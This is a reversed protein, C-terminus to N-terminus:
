YNMKNHLTEIFSTESLKVLKTVKNSRTIVVKDGPFMAQSEGGDYYVGVDVGKDGKPALIEVEVKDSPALIFSRNPLTHPCVATLAILKAKPEVISGGASMNYGTSGTPTSVIIGDAYFDTLLLGNVYIRYGIIQLEGRRSIGIDNLASVKRYVKGKVHAEGSLMMREETHYEGRILSELATKIDEVEVECLFGIAGLNVGLLPIGLDCTDKALKLLTGDGGMVIISESGELDTKRYDDIDFLGIELSSDYNLMYRKAKKALKLGEDKLSNSVITYKKM